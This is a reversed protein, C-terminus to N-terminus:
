ENMSKFETAKLTMEEIEKILNNMKKDNEEKVKQPVKHYQDGSMKKKLSELSKEKSAVEKTLKEIEKSLDMTGKLMINVGCKENVNKYACGSPPKQDPSLLQVDASSSLTAISTKYSTMSTVVDESACSVYLDTKQNKTLNYDDRLKRTARVIEMCTNMNTDIETNEWESNEQQTPWPAICVSEVAMWDDSPKRPLRQWLEECLFPMLPQTLRLAHHLCEFLVDRTQSTMTPDNSQMVPKACELYVDCFEKLWFNHVATTYDPFQYTQLAQECEGVCKYLRHIIWKDECSHTAKLQFDAQPTYNDGLFKTTFKYANWIKNCFKRYGEIRNVDLNIDKGQCTYSILTFRLADAGCEPIGNPYDKKQGVIAKEVESAKLNGQRLTENLEPLTIGNIVHLPDIVNGLSKSMKRGHADRVMAHLYVTKFPLKKTLLLSFFVMRAIWFFLIDHGTELLHGPFFKSLDTDNEPNPWGFVSFPLLGSSYWTDLVDEDQELSIMEEKVDPYKKQFKEVAERMAEEESTGCVWYFEDKREGKPVQPHDVTVFYAPIRHGWWLQRSICWDRINELWRYWEAKFNDPVIELEGSKVAEISEKAVDDCNLFWQTKLMPEVIDKSRSCVPVVMKNDTSKVFLDKEKLDNLVHTRAHFRLMGDFRTNTNCVKGEENFISVMPLKHRKGVEYDKPDHAPTIKVAGTGLDMEAMEDTLIPLERNNFPHKVCKGHFDTYRKDDPHVVVCEDGLMTEIRTTAVEIYKGSGDALMYKFHHMVGFEVPENYGPVNLKTRGELEMSDVEINSITSQLKCSWNVLRNDRFILGERRLQCFSAQVAKTLKADMTFYQRDWDLSSGLKKLQNCINDGKVKKWEWVKEIFKERGLDHRSKDELKRLQKEVVVQTAIGAHDTGPVWLTEKGKARHWRTLVDQVTNTLAHGLHLNGTVNPPPLIMVFKDEGEALPQKTKVRTEPKFYGMKEWWQYWCAETYKPSYQDLKDSVDKKEGPPTNKDYTVIKPKEKEAPKKKEKKPKNENAQKQQKAKAQKAAFKAAKEAKAKEKAIQKATKPKGDKGILSPQDGAASAAEMQKKESKQEKEKMAKYKKMDFKPRTKCCETGLVGSVQDQNVVTMYWRTLNVHNERWKEDLFVKMAPYLACCLCIDAMTVADGSMYTENLLKDDLVKSISNIVNEAEKEVQSNYMSGGVYPSVLSMVCPHLLNDAVSVWEVVEASCTTSQFLHPSFYHSIATSSDVAGEEGPVELRPFKETTSSWFQKRISKTSFNLAISVKNSDYSEDKHKLKLM